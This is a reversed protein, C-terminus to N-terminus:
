LPFLLHFYHIVSLTYLSRLHLIPWVKVGGMKKDHPHQDDRSFQPFKPFNHPLRSKCGNDWNVSVGWRGSTTLCPCNKWRVRRILIGAHLVWWEPVIVVRISCCNERWTCPRTREIIMPWLLSWCLCLLTIQDEAQCWAAEVVGELNWTSWTEVGLHQLKITASQGPGGGHYCCM